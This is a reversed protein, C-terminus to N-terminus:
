LQPQASRIHLALAGRAWPYTSKAGRAREDDLEVEGEGELFYGQGPGHTGAVQRSALIVQVRKDRRLNAETRYYRGAPMILTDSGPESM